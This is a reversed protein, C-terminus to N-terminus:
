DLCDKCYRRDRSSIWDPRLISRCNKDRCFMSDHIEKKDPFEKKFMKYIIKFEEKPDNEFDNLWDKESNIRLIEKIKEISKHM